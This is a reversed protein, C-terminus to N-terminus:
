CGAYENEGDKVKITSLIEAIAEAATRKRQVAKLLQWDCSDKAILHIYTCPWQQGTRHIRDRSQKYLEYSFTLSYYIAYNAATLTIGHGAAQPQCVLYRLRGAQFDDIRRSREIHNVSGDIIASKGRLFPDTAIRNIEHTFAAWIVVQHNGIEELAETLEALKSAGFTVLCEADYFAGGTAHRLRMLVNNTETVPSGHLESVVQVLEDETAEYIAREDEAMDFVRFVDSQPPLDVADEKRLSWSISGLMDLFKQRETTKPVWGTIVERDGFRRKQPYFYRSAFQYYSDSVIGRKLTRLQGWFETEDNPAPTGSLLYASQMRDAFAIAARTMQSKHNKLCSSEDIVLRQVGASLLDSTHRKFIEPNMILVDAGPSHILQRRKGPTNAWCVVCKLRPFHQADRMWATEMISKPCIVATKVPRNTRKADDIIALTAITKGTGCDFFLGYRPNERALEVARRQHAMLEM